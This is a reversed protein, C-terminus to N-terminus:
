SKLNKMNIKSSLLYFIYILNFKLVYATVTIGKWAFAAFAIIFFQCWTVNKSGCHTVCSFASKYLYIASEIHTSLFLSSESNDKNLKRIRINCGTQSYWTFKDMYNIRIHTLFNTRTHARTHTHTRAHNM